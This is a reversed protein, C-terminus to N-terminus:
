APTYTRESAEALSVKDNSGGTLRSSVSEEGGQDIVKQKHNGKKIYAISLLSTSLVQSMKSTM